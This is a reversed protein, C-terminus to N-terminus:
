LEQNKNREGVSHSNLFDSLHEIANRGKTRSRPNEGGLLLTLLENKSNPISGSGTPVGSGRPALLNAPVYDSFTKARIAAYHM